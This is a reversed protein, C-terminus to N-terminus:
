RYLTRPNFKLTDRERKKARAYGHSRASETRLFRLIKFMDWEPAKGPCRAFNIIEIVEKYDNSVIRIRNRTVTEELPM